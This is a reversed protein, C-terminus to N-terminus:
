QRSYKRVGKLFKNLYYKVNIKGVLSLKGERSEEWERSGGSRM